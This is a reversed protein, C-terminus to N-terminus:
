KDKRILLYRLVNESIRLVREVDDTADSPMEINHLLYFGETHKKIEYALQRQGWEESSVITGGNRKVADAVREDLAKIAEEDLEPQIIYVLEYEHLEQDSM